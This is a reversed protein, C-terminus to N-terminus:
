IIYIILIILWTSFNIFLWEATSHIPQTYGDAKLRNINLEKDLYGCYKESHILEDNIDKRTFPHPCSLLQECKRIARNDLSTKKAPDNKQRANDM